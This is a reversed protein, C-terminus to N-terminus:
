NCACLLVVAANRSTTVATRKYRM